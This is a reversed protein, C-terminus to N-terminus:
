SEHDADRKSETPRVEGFQARTSGQLRYASSLRGLADDRSLRLGIDTPKFADNEAASALFARMDAASTETLDYAGDAPLLQLLRFVDNRHKRVDGGSVKEGASARESLDLYARAKVPMIAVDHLLPLGAIEPLNAKLM